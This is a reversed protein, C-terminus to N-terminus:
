LIHIHEHVKNKSDVWKIVTESIFEPFAGAIRREGFSLKMIIDNVKERSSVASVHDKLRLAARISVAIDVIFYVAILSAAIFSSKFLGVFSIVFPHVIYILALSLVGWIVSTIINVRGLINPLLGKYSWWSAGFMKEMVFGTIYEMLTLGIMGFLFISSPGADTLHDFILVAIAGLGYIICFPGTLFGRNLFTKEKLSMYTVEILWGIFSYIVFYYILDTINM